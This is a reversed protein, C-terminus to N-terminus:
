QASTNRNIKEGVKEYAKAAKSLDVPIPTVLDDMLRAAEEQSGTYVHSYIDLTVSPKSHGLIKSVTNIPINHSIMLSAATHRLDHFRIRPLGALDLIRRYEKMLNSENLPTGVSSPFVMNMLKWRSGAAQIELQQREQHERLVQLAKEGLRITRKGAKTKVDGFTTGHGPVHLVQRKVYLLGKHWDIDSWQLGLLEGQRMGTTIALHFLASFRSTQAAMQFQTVQSEDLVSMEAQHIQPRIAGHAPNRILLEYRVAREFAKHLISHIYRISQAGTGAAFLDAYFKEIRALNLEKLKLPGIAPIIKKTILQEYQHATNPRLELKATELWQQLYAGVEIEGSRLSYGQGIQTLMTQLWSQAEKKTKFTKSTKKGQSSAQARWSGNPRQHISGENRGRHQKAM